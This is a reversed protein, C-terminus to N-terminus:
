GEMEEWKDTPKKAMGSTLQSGFMITLRMHYQTM